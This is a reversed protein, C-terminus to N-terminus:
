LSLSPQLSVRFGSGIIYTDSDRRAQRRIQRWAFNSICGMQATYTSAQSCMLMATRCVWPSSAVLFSHSSLPHPVLPSCLKFQPFKSFSQEYTMTFACLIFSELRPVSSKARCEMEWKSLSKLVTNAFNGELSRCQLAFLEVTTIIHM